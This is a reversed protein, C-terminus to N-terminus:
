IIRRSTPTPRRQSRGTNTNLYRARNYYLNLDPDYQEGAFLYNNPSTGTSHIENGFADYDYTDTVNGSSDTLARVSGHGDHVYYRVARSNNTDYRELLELGYYYQVPFNNPPIEQLVQAYGTPNNVDVWYKTTVGAVTKSVRNGDGDYVISIGGQQVLRNEFDYGYALGGSNVTNGNADYADTQLEDNANYLFTGAPVPALSSTMQLRNGVADYSYNVAGNVAHPDSAITENTLRYLNDYAYNVTRGSKETVSTRHGAADVTYAYSAIPGSGNNVGLTKLRNKADYTYSHVVGNPLTATALDGVADYTYTTTGTNSNAVSVLRNLADYGYTANGSGSDARENGAKDYSYFLNGEPRGRFTLRGLGDYGYSTTGSGDVMTARLGQPNYTYTVSASGLHNQAFYPFSFGRGKWFRSPAPVRLPLQM